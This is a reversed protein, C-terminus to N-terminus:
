LTEMELMEQEKTSSSADGLFMSHHSTLVRVCLEAFDQVLWPRPGSDPTIRAAINISEQWQGGFFTLDFLRNWIRVQLFSHM